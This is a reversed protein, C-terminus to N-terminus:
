KASFRFITVSQYKEGPRLITNPFHAHNPGDPFHQTELCFGSYQVYPQGSKGKLRGDLFNGSYFQVGPETTLVELIRGSGSETARACLVPRGDEHAAEDLVFNHDYGRPGITLQPDNAGIDRGIKKTKRFDFATGKVAKIEGTPIAAADVPTFSESNIQLEHDLVTGAGEGALNFYSHNTLNVPTPKDTVGEYRISLENADNLLYTVTIDLNGPYGDEGDKARYSLKLGQGDPGSIGEAKWVVKDFGLIGGHLHNANNDNKALQYTNGDLNFAGNAIRNGYRGVIAGFYPKEVANLYDDASDYGLVIDAFHGKRDPTLISTITAGFNTIKVEIGNKNKLTYLRISSFPSDTIPSTYSM